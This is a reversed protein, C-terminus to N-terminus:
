PTVDRQFANELCIITETSQIKNITQIKNILFKNLEDISKTIVKIFLSYGGTTSYGEVVEEFNKLLHLVAQCDTASKLNIGIYCVVDFGLKKHNVKIKSGEIIGLSKLKEVRVHVTGSSVDHKKAMDAFPTRANKLLSTIIQKDLEDIEVTNPM